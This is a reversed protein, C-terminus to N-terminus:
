YKFTGDKYITAGFIELVEKQRNGKYKDKIYNVVLDKQYKKDPKCDLAYLILKQTYSAGKINNIYDFRKASGSGTISKGDESGDDDRDAKFYGNSEALKYQLYKDINLGNIKEKFLDKVISYKKDTNDLIYNEYLEQKEKDSYNSNILISIKDKNKLSGDEEIDGIKRQRITEQAIKEKYNAYTSLSINKNKETEEESLKKWSELGDKTNTTKYYENNGITATNKYIKLEDVEKLGEKALENIQQQVKEIKDKKIKDDDDSNQIERKQKYLDSMKGSISSMYKYKLNDEDTAKSSNSNVKLKDLKSYFEGPNKNKLVSNTTFKDEIPTNEAQPTGLPLLVDSVGGGYQDLLYNIKMPSINLTQGLWISFKDTTEDYQERKPVDQLRTPVLDEGYWTKNDIVQAIPSAINNDIPNNPAINDKVFLLNAWFDEAFNDINIERGKTIYKDATTFLKQIVATTRGKPMRIFQNDGIKGVIYYSDKVYDQLERYDEDDDWILNNFILAPIGALITKTALVAYGKLGRANAERLNRVQQAMGQVGANLFTFGNRNLAKTIDGGAKFNTTVRSADLMSTEISRGNERSAIYEALRPAMEVVSNVKSIARLPMTIAKKAKTLSNDLEFNGDKFYSNQEGGNQIYENYWYGKQMIQVYAEPIKEYTRLAHQSNNVIEQADKMSNTISFLPNYETLVGRRINSIKNAIKSVKSNNIKTILENQPKLADYMDQNIDYTIRKGNDFVTFTPNKYQTGETLGTQQEDEMTDIITDIDTNENVSNLINNKELTNKLEVGFANRASARYTQLTRDAITQFMPQIDQSGGVAKKIPNNIGTKRTDLPVQIANNNKNVRAIPVYHPYMEKFKDSLEQSIVGNNVLEKKNADLFDYVDQAYSKFKPNDKELKDVIKKSYQASVSEGFVPKNKINVLEKLEKLELIMNTDADDYLQKGKYTIKKRAWEQLEEEAKNQLEENSYKIMYKSKIENIRKKAKEELIMRDINLQHYMYKSFDEVKDGVEDIISTLSKSQLTKKGDKFIYRDNGIAYQGKANSSLTADYKAQLERNNAKLSLTEFVAGKDILNAQLIAWTRQAPKQNKVPESLIKAIKNQKAKEENSPLDITIPEEVNTVDNLKRNKEKQRTYEATNLMNNKPTQLVQRTAKPLTVDQITQGRGSNKYNEDLYSQWTDNKDDQMSFSGLNNKSEGIRDNLRNWVKRDNSRLTEKNVQELGEQIIKKDNVGDVVLIKNREYDKKDIESTEENSVGQNFKNLYNYLGDKMKDLINRNFTASKPLVNSMDIKNYKENIFRNATDRAEKEGLSRQYQRKGLKTSTGRTFGEINQIAHQIEHILTGETDIKSNARQIDLRIEKDKRSFAGNIRSDTSKTNKNLDKFEVKYNRLEPYFMFLTDHELVDELKYIRNEQFNINKLNMYKDSFSFKLKGTDDKFWGTKKIIEINNKGQSVMNKAINYNNIAENYLNSNSQINNVANIGAISYNTKNTTNNYDQRYANEFKNKVDAWFLKESSYGTLKNIKNLKDIIWNYIKRATTPKEITLTNIFDQDGLKNGLIDAVVENDILSQFDTSNIDYVKSYIEELSKRANEFNINEENYSLILNRLENYETTGEFDHTLEHVIVNQLTKKTDANPNLIVERITNGNADTTAKWIANINNDTFINADFKTNIGRAQTVRNISKVTESNTDINYKRASEEYIKNTYRNKENAVPVIDIEKSIQNQPMKNQQKITQQIQLNNDNNVQNQQLNTVSNIENKVINKVDIKGSDQTDKVATKIEEQTVKQNNSIKNVVNIASGVGASAGGMLISTIAGDIGAQLSRQGINEWNAKDKGAVATTTLEGLPEMVAEELFNEGIDLGYNALASKINGKVLSKGVNKTLKAGLMETGSELTAMISAYKSAEEDSMGKQNKADEYYNQTIGASFLVNGGPILNVSSQAISPTVELIKKSIPNSANNINEQIKQNNANEWEQFKNEMPRIIKNANNAINNLLDSNNAISKLTPANNVIEQAQQETYGKDQLSKKIYKNNTNTILNNRENLYEQNIRNVNEYANMALNGLSRTFNSAIGKLDSWINNEKQKNSMYGNQAIPADEYLRDMKEKIRTETKTEERKQKYEEWSSTQLNANDKITIGEDKNRKKKYEEWSM